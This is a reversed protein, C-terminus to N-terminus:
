LDDKLFKVCYLIVVLIVIIGFLTAPGNSTRVVAVPAGAVVPDYYYNNRSMLTSLMIVDTMASYMMWSGSIGMYGYGGMGQNYSVNYTNGGVSTSQPIHDPRTAPKSTYKAPYKAANKTKFASTAEAKSKYATGNAKAKNFSKQDTASRKVTAKSGRTASTAKKTTAKKATVKPAKVTKPRSVRTRTSRSRSGGRRQADLETPFALTAFLMAIMAFVFLRTNRM